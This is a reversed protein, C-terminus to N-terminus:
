SHARVEKASGQGKVKSMRQLVERIHEHYEEPVVVLKEPPLNELIDLIGELTNKKMQICVAREYAPIITKEPHAAQLQEVLGLETAIIFTDHPSNAVTQAMMGTSGVMDAADLVDPDCEPHAITIANPYEEKLLVLQAVDFQRHVYCHGRTDIDIVEVDTKNRVYDALNADPGFLVTSAGTAEVVEVASGSTCIYDAETKAEATTNVYLVVPAGPYKEKMSRIKEASVYAALPCLAKPAPIYVPIDEALISAMEAMFKVGAFIIMDYGTGEGSKRALQLSDGVFDAIEQIDITQYNHALILANRERKLELVRKQVDSM